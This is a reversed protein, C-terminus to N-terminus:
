HQENGTGFCLISDFTTSTSEGVAISLLRFSTSRPTMPEHIVADQCTKECKSWECPGPPCAAIQKWRECGARRGCFPHDDHWDYFWCRFGFVWTHTQKTDDGTKCHLPNFSASQLVHRLCARDLRCPSLISSCPIEHRNCAHLQSSTHFGGCCGLCM